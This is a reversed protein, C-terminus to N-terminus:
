SVWISLLSVPSVTIPNPIIKKMIPTVRKASLAMTTDPLIRMITPALIKVPGLIVSKSYKLLNCPTARKTRPTKKRSFVYTKTPNRSSIIPKNIKNKSLIGVGFDTALFTAVM